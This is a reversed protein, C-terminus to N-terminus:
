RFGHPTEQGVTLALGTVYADGRCMAADLVRAGFLLGSRATHALLVLVLVGVLRCLVLGGFRTLVADVLGRPCGSAGTV